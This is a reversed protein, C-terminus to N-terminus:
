QREGSADAYYAPGRENEHKIIVPNSVDEARPAHHRRSVLLSKVTKVTLSSIEIARKAATETEAPGYRSVLRKLAACAPMGLAPSRREFQARVILTTSEGVSSAWSLFNDPSREAYTRHSEPQHMPDTTIGLDEEATHLAVRKREHFIEIVSCSIKAVVREGVLRHPVSYWRNGALIHYGADVKVPATWRGFQFAKAPLEVMQAREHLEFRSRRSEITNRLQKLNLEDILVRVADNLEQLSFFQQNRIRALVWRQVILVGGEVKAKDKPKKARAPIITTSYHEAMEEYSRNIIPEAGPTTVAAKLNDPVVIKPVAGFYAFMAVNAGIWHEMTQNPVCTVFTFNSYGLIGVFLEVDMKLGTDRCTWFPRRGSFDVFCREGPTYQQRMFRPIKTQHERYHATFQSYSLANAPDAARYEEWALALTMSPKLMEKAVISFDPM